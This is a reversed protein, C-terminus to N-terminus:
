VALSLTVTCQESQFRYVPSLERSDRMEVLSILELAHSVTLEAWLCAYM